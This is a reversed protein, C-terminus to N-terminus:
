VVIWMGNEKIEEEAINEYKMQKIVSLLEDDSQYNEMVNDGDFVEEKVNTGSLVGLYENGNLEELKIDDKLFVKNKDESEPFVVSKLYTDNKLALCKFKYFSLLKKFCALCLKSNAELYEIQLLM